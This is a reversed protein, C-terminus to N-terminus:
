SRKKVTPNILLKAKRHKSGPVHVLNRQVDRVDSVLEEIDRSWQWQVLDPLLDVVLVEHEEVGEVQNGRVLPDCFLRNETM